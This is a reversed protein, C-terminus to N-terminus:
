MNTDPESFLIGKKYDTLMAKVLPLTKDPLGDLDFWGVDDCKKPEAIRPEGEWVDAKFFFAIYNKDTYIHKVHIFSLEEERVQVGCEEYAERRIAHTIKEGVDVHGAPLTYYGDKWGTNFRRLLLVKDNKHLFLFASLHAIQREAM